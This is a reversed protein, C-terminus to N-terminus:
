FPVNGDLFKWYLLFWGFLTFYYIKREMKEVVAIKFKSCSHLNYGIIPFYLDLSVLERKWIQRTIFTAFRFSKKMKLFHLVFKDSTPKHFLVRHYLSKALVNWVVLHLIKLLNCGMLYTNSDTWSKKNSNAMFGYLITTLM